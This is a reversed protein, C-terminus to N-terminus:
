VYVDIISHLLHACIGGVMKADQKFPYFHMTDM